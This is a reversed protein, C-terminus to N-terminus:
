GGACSFYLEKPLQICPFRRQGPKEHVHAQSRVAQEISTVRANILFWLWPQIILMFEFVYELQM